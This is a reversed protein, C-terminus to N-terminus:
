LIDKIKNEVDHILKFVDTKADAADVHAAADIDAAEKNFVSEFHAAIREGLAELHQTSHVWDAKVDSSALAIEAAVKAQVAELLVKASTTM